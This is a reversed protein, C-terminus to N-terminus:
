RPPIKFFPGKAVVICAPITDLLKLPPEWNFDYGDLDGGTDKIVGFTRLVIFFVVM